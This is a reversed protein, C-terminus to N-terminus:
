LFSSCALGKDESPIMRLGANSTNGCVCTTVIPVAEKMFTMTIQEGASCQVNVAYGDVGLSQTSHIRYNSTPVWKSLEGLFM